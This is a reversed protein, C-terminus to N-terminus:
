AASSAAAPTGSSICSQSPSYPMPARTTFIPIWKRSILGSRVTAVMGTSPMFFDGSTQPYDGDAATATGDVTSYQGSVNNNVPFPLTYGTTLVITGSNGPGSADLVRVRLTGTGAAQALPSMVTFVVAAALFARM